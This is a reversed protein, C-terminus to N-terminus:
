GADDVDHRIKRRKRMRGKATGDGSESSSTGFQETVSAESTVGTSEQQVRGPMESTGAVEEGEVFALHGTRGLIENVAEEMLVGLALLASADLSEYSVKAEDGLMREYFDAAYTHLAKLLDSDPLQQDPRLHRDAWYIDNEEYRTPARRSRFLVEDPPIPITSTSATDRTSPIRPEAPLFGQTSIR